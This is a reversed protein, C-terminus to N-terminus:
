PELLTGFCLHYEIGDTSKDNHAIRIRELSKKILSVSMDVSPISKYDEQWNVDARHIEDLREYVETTPVYDYALPSIQGVEKERCERYDTYALNKAKCAPYGPYITKLLYEALQHTQLAEIVPEKDHTLQHGYLYSYIAELKRKRLRFLNIPILGQDTVNKMLKNGALHGLEQSQEVTLINPKQRLKRRKYLTFNM